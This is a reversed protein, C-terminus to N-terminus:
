HFIPVRQGGGGDVRQHFIECDKKKVRGKNLLHILFKEDPFFIKSEEAIEFCVLFIIQFHVFSYAHFKLFLTQPKVVPIFEWVMHFLLIQLDM